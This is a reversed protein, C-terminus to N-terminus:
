GGIIRTFEDRYGRSLPVDEGSILFVRQGSDVPRIERIKDINVIVSRHTRAFRGGSLRRMVNSMTDRIVYERGDAHVAIYNRSAELYDIQEFRLVSDGAGTQVILRDARSQAATPKSRRYYQYASMLIVFGLYIKIDKQYEVILNAVFPERWVYTRENLAYWPIRLAVMLAYHGFAFIITGITHGIVARPWAALSLPYLKLWQVLFPIMVLVAAASTVQESVLRFTDKGVGSQDRVSLKTLLDIGWLVAVLAMWGAAELWVRLNVSNENSSSLGTGENRSNTGDM